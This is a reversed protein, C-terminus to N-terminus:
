GRRFKPKLPDLLALEANTGDGIVLGILYRGVGSVMTSTENNTLAFRADRRDVKKVEIHVASGDPDTGDLDYGINQRSVNQLNWGRANLHERAAEEAVRWRRPISNHRDLQAVM